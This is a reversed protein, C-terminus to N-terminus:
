QFCVSFIHGLAHIDLFMLDIDESKLAENAEFANECKRVLEIEPMQSIYTELVDLALPEDDVIIAKIM